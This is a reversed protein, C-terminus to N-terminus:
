SDEVLIKVAIKSDKNGKWWGTFFGFILANTFALANCMCWSHICFETIELSMRMFLQSPSIELSINM